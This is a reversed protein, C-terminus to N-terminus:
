LPALRYGMKQALGRFWYDVNDGNSNMESWRDQLRDPTELAAVIPAPNVIHSPGARSPEAFQEAHHFFPPMVDSLTSDISSPGAGLGLGQVPFSTQTRLNPSEGDFTDGQTSIAVPFAYPPRDLASATGIYSAPFATISGDPFGTPAQIEPVHPAHLPTAMLPTAIPHIPTEEDAASQGTSGELTSHLDLLFMRTQPLHAIWARGPDALGRAESVCEQARASTEVETSITMSCALCEIRM